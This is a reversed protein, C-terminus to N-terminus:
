TRKKQKVLFGFSKFEWYGKEGYVGIIEQDDELEYVTRQGYNSSDRSNYDGIVNDEEDYFKLQDVHGDNIDTM